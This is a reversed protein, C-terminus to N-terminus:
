YDACIDMLKDIASKDAEFACNAAKSNAYYGGTMRTVETSTALYIPTKAAQVATMSGGFGLDNSLKSNADGPHCSNISIDEQYLASFGYTMMRNAQKSQRYAQDNNYSRHKFEPDDLDLGGAWYSAVNVIRGDASKRLQKEFALTMWFYSLVNTAWQVEIGDKTELRSRPATAANNILVDVPGAIERALGFVEDKVSVDVARYEVLGGGYSSQFKRQLQELRAKNRGILLVRYNAEILGKAIESGIVGYAGTIIATKM